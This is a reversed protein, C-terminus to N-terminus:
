VRAGRRRRLMLLAAGGLVMLPLTGPTPVMSVVGEIVDNQCTEGWHMAFSTFNLLESNALNITFRLEQGATVTWSGLLGTDRVSSAATNVATAQGNRYSCNGPACTIFSDSTLLNASNSAGNLQYLRFTGGTNSLRNDLSFGYSWKTGNAANDTTHHADSGFPNWNQALFLDGYGIGGPAVGPEVGAHGAFNTAIAVTLVSNVRTITAGSIDYTSDGIVDGYGHGDAGWYANVGADSIGGATASTGALMASTSLLLALITKM